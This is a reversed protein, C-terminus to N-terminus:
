IWKCTRIIVPSKIFNISLIDVLYGSSLRSQRDSSYASVGPQPDRSQRQNSNREAQGARALALAM